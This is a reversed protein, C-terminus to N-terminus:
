RAAGKETVTIKFPQHCHACTVAFERRGTEPPPHLTRFVRAGPRTTTLDALDYCNQEGCHPCRATIVPPM